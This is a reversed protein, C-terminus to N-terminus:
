LYWAADPAGTATFARYEALKCACYASLYKAGLYDRLIRGHACTELAAPLERPLGRDAEAGANGRSPPGPDIHNEIGYHMGALAAALALYPNADAGAVRHEIRTDLGDRHKCPPVRLAVSRNDFGWNVRVPVYQDPKLRRCSNANPAFVAMSEAQAAKMGGIAHLLSESIAPVGDGDGAFVNEGNANLLSIHLHLGSGARATYPKAMFTALLGHRRAVGKVAHRFMVCQDAAQLADGHALNIEFQGPAYESSMPGCAIGQQACADTVAHLFEGFDEVSDISYVQTAADRARSLLGRPPRLRRGRLHLPDALYFELEFAVVPRLKLAAFKALVRALVNRPEYDYAAGTADVLTMLVQATPQVAWPSPALTGPLPMGTADPDGDSFGLGKADLSDGTVALMCTSGAINVGGTFIRGAAHVPYRKGRMAACVDAVLADVYRTKPHRKLYAALPATDTSMMLRRRADGLCVPM